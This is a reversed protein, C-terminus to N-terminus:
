KSGCRVRGAAANETTDPSGEDTRDASSPRLAAELVHDNWQGTWDAAEEDVRPSEVAAVLEAGNALPFIVANLQGVRTAAPTGITRREGLGLGLPEIPQGQADALMRAM